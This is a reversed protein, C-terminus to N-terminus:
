AITGVSHLNRVGLAIGLLTSAGLQTRMLINGPQSILWAVSEAPIDTLDRESRIGNHDDAQIDETISFGARQELWEIDGKRTTWCPRHIAHQSFTLNEGPLSALM